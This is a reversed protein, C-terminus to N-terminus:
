RVRPSPRSGSPPRGPPGLSPRIPLAPTPPTIPAGVGGGGKPCRGRSRPLVLNTRGQSAPSTAAFGVSPTAGCHGDEDGAARSEDARVDGVRQERAALGDVNIVRQLSGADLAIEGPQLRAVAVEDGGRDRVDAVMVAEGVGGAGGVAHDVESGLDRDGGAEVIREGIEFGVDGGGDAQEFGAALM